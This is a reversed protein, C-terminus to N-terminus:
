LTVETVVKLRAGKTALAHEIARNVWENVSLGVAEAREKIQSHLDDEMRINVQKKGM